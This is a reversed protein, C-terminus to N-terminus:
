IEDLSRFEYGKERALDIIRGLGEANDPSVAHLLIVAGPHLRSVVTEVAHDSGKQASLDWDEYALSWFVCRYGMSNLFYLSDENYKGQPYRFFLSSYGFNERMYDDFGKVEDFMRNRDVSSFDPHHVSHNGVIHGERIMRAVLSPDFEIDYLTCFFAAEVDKEKLTDLIKATYGNEYGCDFTLYIVKEETKNDYCIADYGGEDFFQQCEMSILNVEGNKAIGFSHSILKTPLDSRGKFDAASFENLALPEFGTYTNENGTEEGCFIRQSSRVNVPSSITSQEETETEHQKENDTTDPEHATIESHVSTTESIM